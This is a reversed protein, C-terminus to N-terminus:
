CSYVKLEYKERMIRSFISWTALVAQRWSLVMRALLVLLLRDRRMCVPRKIQQRLIIVQHRLPTNEALLESKGRALDTLTGFVLSAMSPKIWALFRAQLTHFSFFVQQKIFLFVRFVLQTRRRSCRANAFGEALDFQQNEGVKVPGIIISKSSPIRSYRHLWGASPLRESPGIRCRAEEKPAHPEGSTVNTSPEGRKNQKNHYFLRLISFSIACAISCRPSDERMPSIDMKAM